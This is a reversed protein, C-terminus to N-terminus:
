EGFFEPSSKKILDLYHTPIEFLGGANEYFAGDLTYVSADSETNKRVPYSKMEEWRKYNQAGNSEVVGIKMGRLVRLRAAFNKNWEVMIPNVTLDACFCQVGADYAAKAMKATVSPTKAIPKLTIAGYGLAIRRKVDALSHASEDAAFCITLDGLYVENEPAFPEEFLVTRDAIGEERLFDVLEELREKTDYRGNADFYYVPRGCETFQTKFDRLANHIKLARAKDWALMKLPDGDGDPDCGLKIKFICVGNTALRKVEEIPTNYTILPINALRDCAGEGKFVFDFSDAGCVRAFLQWAAMDLPVLANLVFTETVSLETIKRAYELCDAFVLDVIEEASSFEKGMILGAAYETVAFMLENSKDEGYKVFVSPDSWLVSEVGLGVGVEGNGSLAVVTQWVGTLKNGKFGFASKFLEPEYACAAKEIKIKM